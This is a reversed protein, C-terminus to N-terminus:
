IIFVDSRTSNKYTENSHFIFYLVLEKVLRTKMARIHKQYWTHHSVEYIEFPNTSTFLIFENGCEEKEEETGFRSAQGFVVM